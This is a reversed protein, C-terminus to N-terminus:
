KLVGNNEILALAKEIDCPVDNSSILAMIEISKNDNTDLINTSKIYNYVAYVPCMLILLAVGYSIVM